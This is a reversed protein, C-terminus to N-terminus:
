RMKKVSQVVRAARIAEELTIGETLRPEDNIVELVGANLMVLLDNADVKNEKAWRWTPHVLAKEYAIQGVGKKPKPESM